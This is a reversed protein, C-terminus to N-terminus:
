TIIALIFIFAVFILIDKADKTWVKTSVYIHPKDKLPRLEIETLISPHGTKPKKEAKQNLQPSLDKRSIFRGNEDRRIPKMEVLTQLDNQDEQSWLELVKMVLKKEKKTLTKM